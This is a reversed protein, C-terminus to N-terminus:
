ARGGNGGCGGGVGGAIGGGPADDSSVADVAARKEDARASMAVRIATQEQRQQPREADISRKTAMPEAGAM